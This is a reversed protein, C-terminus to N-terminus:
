FMRDFEAHAVILHLVATSKCLEFVCEYDDDVKFKWLDGESKVKEPRVSQHFVDEGFLLLKRSLKRKVADPLSQYQKKFKDSRVISTPTL